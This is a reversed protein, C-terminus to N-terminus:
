STATACGRRSRARGRRRAQGRSRAAHGSRACRTSSGRREHRRRDAGRGRRLHRYVVVVDAENFARAFEALLDRTRTYRHPQFAAVIRRRRLGARAGPWRPASRRRTTGTTTSSWSAAAEGRVTFRRGCARRLRRAGARYIDFTSASSTPWRSCPSRTSCTTRARCACSSRASRRAARAGRHLAHAARRLARRRRSLRAQPALGYTVHRKEVRPLIAQVDAHDLCLVALGYFPVKNIFDVFTRKLQELTGYHDLHEPDINTVVAITPTLKLFSGDRSTPRPWWTSARGSGRTRASRRQLKGGIVATPISGPRAAAGDGGAVHHHDQRALRRRRRRVEHADARRADRRAPDGPDARARAEVVEPNDAQGRELHRGRRGRRPAGADHGYTCADRRARALRRTM